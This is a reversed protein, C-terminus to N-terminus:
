FVIPVNIQSSIGALREAHRLCLEASEIVCPGAILVMRPGGYVVAGAVVQRKSVVGSQATAGQALTRACDRCAARGGRPHARPVTSPLGVPALAARSPVPLRPGM